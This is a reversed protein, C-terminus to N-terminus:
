RRRLGPLDHALEGVGVRREGTGRGLEIPVREDAGHPDQRRHRPLEVRGGLQDVGGAGHGAVARRDRRQEVAEDGGAVAPGAHVPDRGEGPEDCSHSRLGVLERAGEPLRVADDAGDGSIAEHVLQGPCPGQQGFPQVLNPREHRRGLRRAGGQRRDHTDVALLLVEDEGEVVGLDPRDATEDSRERRRREHVSGEAVHGEAVDLLDVPAVLPCVHLRGVREGVVQEAREGPLDGVGAPPGVELRTDGVHPPEVPDLGPLVVDLADDGEGGLQHVPQELDHARDGHLVGPDGDAGALGVEHAQLLHLDEVLAVPPLREERVQRRLDELAQIGQRRATVRLDEGRQVLRALPPLELDLEVVRHGLRGDVAEAPGTREREGRGAVPQRHHLRVHGRDGLQVDQEVKIM